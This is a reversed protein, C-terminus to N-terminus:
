VRLAARPCSRRIFRHISAPESPSVATSDATAALAKGPLVTLDELAVLRARAVCERDVGVVGAFGSAGGASAGSAASGEVSDGLDLCVVGDLSGAGEGSAEWGGGESSVRCLAGGASVWRGSCSVEPGTTEPPDHHRGSRRPVVAM